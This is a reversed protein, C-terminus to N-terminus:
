AMSWNKFFELIFPGAYVLVYCVCCVIVGGFGASKLSPDNGGTAKVAALRILAIVFFISIIVYAVLQTMSLAEGGKRAVRQEVAAMSVSKVTNYSSSNNTSNVTTNAKNTSTANSNNTETSNANVDQSQNANSDSKGADCDKDGAGLVADVTPTNSTVIEGAYSVTHSSLLYTFALVMLILGKKM